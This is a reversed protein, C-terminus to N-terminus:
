SNCRNQNGSCPKFLCFDWKSVVLEGPQGQSGVTASPVPNGTVTGSYGKFHGTGGPVILVWPNFEFNVLGLSTLTSGNYPSAPGYIHDFMTFVGIVSKRTYAALGTIEGLTTSNASTGQRLFNDYM